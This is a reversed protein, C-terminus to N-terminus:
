RRMGADSRRIFVPPLADSSARDEMLWRELAEKYADLEARVTEPEENGLMDMIQLASRFGDVFEGAEEITMPAMENEGEPDPEVRRGDLTLTGVKRKPSIADLPRSSLAM